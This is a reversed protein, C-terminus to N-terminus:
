EALSIKSNGAATANVVANFADLADPEAAADPADGESAANTITAGPANGLAVIKAELGEIKADYDTRIKEIEANVADAAPALTAEQTPTVTNGAAVVEAIVAEMSLCGNQISNKFEEINMETSNQTNSIDATPATQNSKLSLANKITSQVKELFSKEPTESKNQFHAVVNDYSMNKIDAIVNEAEDEEIITNISLSQCTEADLWHNEYNFYEEKIEEKTKNFVQSATAILTKEIVDLVDAATRLDKANGFKGNMPSHIMMVANSAMHRVHGSLWIGSAMSAAVGDNYTHIEAKSNKIATIIANGHFISGGPSNIRINIVDNKAELKRLTKVFEIDTITNEKDNNWWEDQGIDGYLLIEPIGNDDSTVINFYKNEIKNKAM